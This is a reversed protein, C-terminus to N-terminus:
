DSFRKKQQRRRSLNVIKVTGTTKGGAVNQGGEPRSKTFSTPYLSLLAKTIGRMQRDSKPSRWEMSEDNGKAYNWISNVDQDRFSDYTRQNSAHVVEAFGEVLSYRGLLKAGVILWADHLRIKM